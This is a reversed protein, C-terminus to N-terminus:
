FAGKKYGMMIRTVQNTDIVRIIGKVTMEGRNSGTSVQRPIVRDQISTLSVGSINNMDAKPQSTTDYASMPKSKFVDTTEM